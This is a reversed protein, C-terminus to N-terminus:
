IGFSGEIFAARLSAKNNGKNKNFKSASPIGMMMANNRAQPPPGSPNRSGAAANPDYQQPPPYYPQPPYGQPPYGQPPPRSAPPYGQPPYGQPPPAYGHPPHPAYGQPPYGQPAPAPPYGHAPPPYGQPPYGQAPAPPYGQPPYSQPHYGQPGPAPPYSSQPPYGKPAHGQPAPAPYGQTQPAPPQSTGPKPYPGGNNVPRPPSRSPSVQRQQIPENVEYPEPIPQSEQSQEEEPLPTREKNPSVSRSSRKKKTKKKKKKEGSETSGTSETPSTPPQGFFPPPPMGPIPGPMMGPPFFGFQNASPFGAEAAAAAAAAMARAQEKEKKKKEKEQKKKKKEEKLRKAEEPDVEQAKKVGDDSIPSQLQAQRAKHVDDTEIPINDRPLVVQSSSRRNEIQQEYLAYDQYPDQNEFQNDYFDTRESPPTPPLDRQANNPQPPILPLEHDNNRLKLNQLPPPRRREERRANRPPPSPDVIQAKEEFDDGLDKFDLYEQYQRYEDGEGGDDVNFEGLDLKYDEDTFNINPLPGSAEELENPLPPLPMEKTKYSENSPVRKHPMIHNIESDTLDFHELYQKSDMTTETLIIWKQFGKFQAEIVISRGFLHKFQSIQDSGLTSLWTWIYYDQITVDNVAIQSFLPIDKDVSVTNRTWGPYLAYKSDIPEETLRNLVRRSEDTLTEVIEKTSGKQFVNKLITFNEMSHFSDKKEFSLSHRIKSILEYPNSSPRTSEICVCPITIMSKLADDEEPPPYTNTILLSQLTKPLKLTESDSEPLMARLFSLLLHFLANSSPKWSELGQSFNFEKDVTADYFPSKILKSMPNFAWISAMKTIKRGSLYNYQSNSTISILLDLFDYVISAHAPSSLCKPMISLFANKPCGAEQERRKFELYVDWGIIENNPLRTWLYKLACILTFDDTSKVIRMAKSEDDNEIDILEGNPYVKSLFLELNEDNIKSRFPLFIHPTKTGGRNKLEITILHLIAKLKKKSFQDPKIIGSTLNYIIDNNIQDPLKPLDFRDPLPKSKSM